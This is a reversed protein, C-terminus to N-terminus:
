SGISVYKVINQLIHVIDLDKLILLIALGIWVPYLRDKWLRKRSLVGVVGELRKIASDVPKKVDEAIHIYVHDFRDSMSRIDDKTASHQIQGRIDVIDDRMHETQGEIRALREGTAPTIDNILHRQAYKDFAGEDTSEPQQRRRHECESTCVDNPGHGAARPRRSIISEIAPYQGRAGGDAIDALANSITRSARGFREPSFSTAPGTDAGAESGV